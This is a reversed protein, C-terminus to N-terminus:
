RELDLGAYPNRPTEHNMEDVFVNDLTVGDILCVTVQQGNPVYVAPVIEELRKAVLKEIGEGARSLGRFAAFRLPDGTVVQSAGGLPNLQTATEKAASADTGASLAGSLVAFAAVDFARWVYQGAVGQVGDHDVVYGNISVEVAEGNPKVYSLRDLQIVVRESNPDGTAKGVLLAEQVPIRTRNPGVFARDIRLKVPMPQGQTPAYVGTLVTAEAFSGAPLRVQREARRRDAEKKATAITVKRIRANQNGPTDQEEPGLQRKLEEVARKLPDGNEDRARLAARLQALDGRLGETGKRLEDNENKMRDLQTGQTSLEKGQKDVLNGFHDVFGKMQGTPTMGVDYRGEEGGAPAPSPAGMRALGYFLAGGVVLLLLLAGIKGYASQKLIAPLWM